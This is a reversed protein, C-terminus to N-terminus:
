PTQANPTQASRIRQLREDTAPHTSLYEFLQQSFHRDNKTATEKETGSETASESQNEDVSVVHQSSELKELMSALRDPSEGAAFLANIAFDDAERELQRSFSLEGLAVPLTYVAESVGSIDGTLLTLVILWASSRLVSTEAHRLKAHGVEHLYVGLLEADQAALEVLEDTFVVYGGPLAFANAGIDKGHRFLIKPPYNDVARFYHELEQQRELPLQSEEVYLRDIFQLSQEASQESVSDPIKFALYKAGYPIGWVLTALLLATVFLLMGIALPLQNELRFALNSAKHGPLLRRLRSTGADDQTIFCAVTGWSIRRPTNSIRDSLLLDGPRISLQVEGADLECGREHVTLEADISRSTLGDQYSGQLTFPEFGKSM